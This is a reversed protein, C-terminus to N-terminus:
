DPPASPHNTLVEAHHRILDIHKPKLGEDRHVHVLAFNTLHHDEILRRKTHRNVEDDVWIFPEGHNSAWAGIIDTKWSHRAALPHRTQLARYGGPWTIAPLDQPLGVLPAIARNAHAGWTTAWIANLAGDHHALLPALWTGHLPNLWMPYVHGTDDAVHHRTYGTAITAPGPRDPNLPGDVDLLLWPRTPPVNGM